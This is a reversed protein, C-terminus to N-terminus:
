FSMGEIKLEVKAYIDVVTTIHDESILFETPKVWIVCNFNKSILRHPLGLNRRVM